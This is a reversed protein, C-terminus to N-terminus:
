MEDANEWTIPGFKDDRLDRLLSEYNRKEDIQNGSLLFGRKIAIKELMLYPEEEVELDYKEKIRDPYEHILKKMAYVAVEEIPLITDNIAGTVALNLAVTADEFKPWLVGPTDLLELDKNLKVWQLAKTVGPRDSTKAIRKKALRNIMTSKGVNPIGVVMARIARPNIGRARQKDLKPKMIDQCNKTILSNVNDHVLDCAIVTTSENSLKKVWGAVKEIEGKDKKSLLILRPKNQILEEIMPNKSSNPIRCDRIEIVMDVMKLKDQMERKAKTMHGPYWNITSNQRSENNM